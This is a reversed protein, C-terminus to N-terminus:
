PTPRLYLYGSERKGTAVVEWTWWNSIGYEGWRAGDLLRVSRGDHLTVVDGISPEPPLDEDVMARVWSAVRTM